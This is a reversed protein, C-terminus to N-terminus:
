SKLFEDEYVPVMNRTGGLYLARMMDEWFSPRYECAKCADPSWQYIVAVILFLLITRAPQVQIELVVPDLQQNLLIDM